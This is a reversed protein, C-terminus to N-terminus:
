AHVGKAPLDRPSIKSGYRRARPDARRTLRVPDHFVNPGRRLPVPALRRVIDLASSLRPRIVEIAGPDLEYGISSRGLEHAAVSTTGSGLFPDLVLEGPFSFMRILRRPLELPFPALRAFQKEGPFNWHGHFYRNWEATTMRAADKTAQSVAARKHSTKGLKKFLLIHEYDLKVIGNRPHPFSGMIVAGGSTNCTTVKQWIISGMFDFGLTECSRIIDAHIPIIKYRGYYAARAFQDGVNICLRCGPQLVRWCERWVQALKNIYEEYTDNFGIQGPPGYDKLQWYPPSTVVLHLAADAVEPMARADGLIVTHRPIEM